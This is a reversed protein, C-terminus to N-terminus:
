IINQRAASRQEVIPMPSMFHGTRQGTNKEYPFWGYIEAYGTKNIKQYDFGNTIVEGISLLCHIATKKRPDNL